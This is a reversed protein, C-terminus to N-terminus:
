PSRVYIIVTCKATYLNNNSGGSTHRRLYVFFPLAPFPFHGFSHGKTKM